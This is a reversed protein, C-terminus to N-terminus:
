RACGVDLVEIVDGHHTYVLWCWDGFAAALDSVQTKHDAAVAGILTIIEEHMEDPVDFLVNAARQIIEVKM